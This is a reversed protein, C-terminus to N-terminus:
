REPETQWGGGLVAYLRVQSSLKALRLSVLGQQAAYLSRQADLVSLYGDIGKDYRSQSLRHAETLASVMSEQAEVQRDAAGSAALADAVERFAGQIAAEYQTVAMEQQVKAARHASWTRADFIPMVVQPAFSWADSDTKFLGSLEASATGLAATLSIRPLFAARAAGIDANAAKLLSEAQLVDPRLLLVESPVGAAVKQPPTVNELGAPLLDRPAPSGLLLNLANEDQAVRQTFRAVDGRAADVQTQARYLDLEGVLGLENSRRILNYADRQATLTQEALALGDRDAALGMYVNAVSSVLSIQAGRRAQETALYEELARDKLSQIRGFLDIEWSTVGLNVDYREAIQAAGTSSLDAPTRRKSGSGIADIAPFLDARKIRYLSRALDVNLTAMRLDRNNKLATAILQRLKDDTIFEQWRLDPASAVAAAPAPSTEHAQGAPWDAPVPATPREYKPALTCGGPVLAILALLLFANKNM